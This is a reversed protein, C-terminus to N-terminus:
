SGWSVTLALSESERVNVVVVVDMTVNMDPANATESDISNFLGRERDGERERAVLVLPWFLKGACRLEREGFVFTLRTSEEREEEEFSFNKKPAACSFRGISSSNMSSTPPFIRSDSAFNM